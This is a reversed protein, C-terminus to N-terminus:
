MEEPLFGALPPMDKHAVGLVKFLNGMEQPAALRHRESEIDREREPSLQILQQSRLSLGLAELFVGQATIPATALGAAEAIHALLPFNVHATLDALGPEALPDVYGHGRMAQFSDGCAAEAHGYDILLAAGGHTAIHQGLQQMAREVAVASEVIAGDSIDDPLCASLADSFPMSVAGGETLALEDGDATVMIPMWDAGHKCYQQVPLADFFENAVMLTPADPLTSLDDHWHAHPVALAQADRLQPSTEIFHVQAAKLFDPLVNAARLIDAMLTGRGPGLEVLCFDNPQGMRHWLDALWAGILEGFMQSVEPATVFDGGDDAQRGFPRRQMYYGHAPDALARAMYDALLMPGNAAIEEILIKKLPTM